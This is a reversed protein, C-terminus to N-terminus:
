FKTWWERWTLLKRKLRSWWSMKSTTFYPCDYNSNYKTSDKERKATHETTLSDIEKDFKWCELYGWWNIDGYLCFECRVGSCTSTSETVAPNTAYDQGFETPQNKVPAMVKDGRRWLQM